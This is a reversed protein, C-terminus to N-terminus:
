VRWNPRGSVYLIRYPGRGRDVVVTRKNNLATAEASAEPDNADAYSEAVVAVDYFLVGVKEPRLRFRFSRKDDDSKVKWESRDAEMGNDDTVVVAVNQGKFGLAEADAQITVPADEFSTQTVSVNTLSLDKQFRQRGVLLSHEVPGDGLQVKRHSGAFAHYAQSDVRESFQEASSPVVKELTLVEADRAEVLNAVLEPLHPKM